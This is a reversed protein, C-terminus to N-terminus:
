KKPNDFMNGPEGAAGATKRAEIEKVWRTWETTIAKRNPDLDDTHSNRVVLKGDQRVILVESAADEDVVRNGAGPIVNGKEDFRVNTKTKM